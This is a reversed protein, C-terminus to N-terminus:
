AIRKAPDLQRAVWILCPTTVIPILEGYIRMERLTGVFVMGLFFPGIVWLSRRVPEPQDKTVFPLAAWLGGCWLLFKAVVKLSDGRMGLLQTLTYRNKELSDSYLQHGHPAMAFWLGTKIAGWVACQAVVHALLTRMPVRRYATFAYLGTLTLCTERNLVAIAFLPYFLVWRRKLLLYWGTAFFFV